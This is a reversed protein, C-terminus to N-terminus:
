MITTLADRLVSDTVFYATPVKKLLEKTVIRLTM